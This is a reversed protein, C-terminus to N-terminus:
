AQRRNKVAILQAVISVAIEKPGEADISLGVPSHLWDPISGDMLRATRKKSGLIGIYFLQLDKLIRLIEIDRQFHHTMIVVSDLPTLEIRKMLKEVSDVQITEASPFYVPSCLAERWDLIHVSYEAESALYALPRADEGAGIIYLSPKPWLLQLFYDEESILKSYRCFPPAALLISEWVDPIEQDWKGFTGKDSNLFVYQDVNKVSQIYLVPKKETFCQYVFSLSQRFTEDVDRAFVSIIGNCGVGVGWGLDNESSLDYQYVAAAGTNFVEEVRSQMDNELCGGSLLGMRSGDLRFFMSAGEKRYSSGDVHFITAFVTPQNDNLVSTIMEHIHGM